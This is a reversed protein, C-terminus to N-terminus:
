TKHWAKELRRVFHSLRTAASPKGSDFVVVVRSRNIAQNTPRNVGKTSPSVRDQRWHIRRRCGDGVPLRDLTRCVHPSVTTAPRGNSSSLNCRLIAVVAFVARGALSCRCSRQPRRFGSWALDTDDNSRRDRWRWLYSDLADICALTNRDLPGCCDLVHTRFPAHRPIPDVSSSATRRVYSIVPSPRNVTWAHLRRLGDTCKTTRVKGAPVSEALGLRDRRGDPYWRIMSRAVDLACEIADVPRADNMSRVTTSTSTSLSATSTSPEPSSALLGNATLQRSPPVDRKNTAASEVLLVLVPRRGSYSYSKKLALVLLELRNMRTM